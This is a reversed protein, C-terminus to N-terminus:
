IREPVMESPTRNTLGHPRHLLFWRWSSRIGQQLQSLQRQHQVPPGKQRSAAARSATWAQRWGIPSATLQTRPDTKADTRYSVGAAPDGNRAREAVPSRGEVASPRAASPRALPASHCSAIRYRLSAIRTKAYAGIDDGANACVQQGAPQAGSALRHTVVPGSHVLHMGM